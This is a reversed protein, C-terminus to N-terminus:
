QSRVTSVSRKGKQEKRERSKGKAVTEGEYVTEYEKNTDYANCGSSGVITCDNEGIHM